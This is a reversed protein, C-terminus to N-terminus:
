GFSPAAPTKSVRSRPQPVSQRLALVLRDAAQEFAALLVAIEREGHAYSMNVAGLTFLRHARCENVWLSRIAQPDVGPLRRFQLRGAAPDGALEVVDELGCAKLRAATEAQVEAGSVRLASLVPERSIKDLVAKAAALCAIDARLPEAAQVAEILERRGALVGLPMGNALNEGFVMLDAEVGYLAQAGGEHVRFGSLTEDFVLVTGLKDCLARVGRLYGPSPARAGCPALVIAATQGGHLHMLRELAELDDFPFSAGMRRAGGDVAARCAFVQERRTVM